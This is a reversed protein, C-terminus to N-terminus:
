TNLPPFRLRYSIGYHPNVYPFFETVVPTMPDIKRLEVPDIRDGKSIHVQTEFQSYIIQSRTWKKLATQYEGTMGKERGIDLYSELHSCAAAVFFCVGGILLIVCRKM